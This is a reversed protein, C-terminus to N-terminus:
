KAKGGKTIKDRYIYVGFTWRWEKEEPVPEKNDQVSQMASRNVDNLVSLASQRSLQELHLSQEESLGDYHVARELFAPKSALINETAVAMHDHLNRGFYHALEEGGSAPIFAQELLVIRQENDLTVLGQGLWDDLIARPRVDRTVSEVLAEFSPADPTLSSRPLPLPQGDLGTYGPASLWQAIIRSSRSVAVPVTSVQFGAERLRRVEKRHVGTLLSIRSDTQAKGDLAFEEEAVHVYLERLLGELSPFTVGARILLRVLPRLMRQLPMQMHQATLRPPNSPNLKDM